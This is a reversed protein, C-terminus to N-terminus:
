GKGAGECPDDPDTDVEFPDAAMVARRLAELAYPTATALSTGMPGCFTAWGLATWVLTHLVTIDSSGVCVKPTATRLKELRGQDMALATRIAGM